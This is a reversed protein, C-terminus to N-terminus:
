IYIHIYWLIYTYIMIYIYLGLHGDHFDQMTNCRIFKEGSALTHLGKRCAKKAPFELRQRPQLSWTKQLFNHSLTDSLELIRKPQIWSSFFKSKSCSVDHRTMNPGPYHNCTTAAHPPSLKQSCHTWLDAEWVVKGHGAFCCADFLRSMSDMFSPCSGQSTMVTGSNRYCNLDCNPHGKPEWPGFKAGGAFSCSPESHDVISVAESGDHLDRFRAPSWFLFIRFLLYCPSCSCIEDRLQVPIILSSWPDEWRLRLAQCGHATPM